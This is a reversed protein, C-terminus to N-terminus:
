TLNMWTSTELSDGYFVFGYGAVEIKKGDWCIIQFNAVIANIPTNVDITSPELRLIKKETTSTVVTTDKDEGKNKDGSKSNCSCVIIAVTLPLIIKKM